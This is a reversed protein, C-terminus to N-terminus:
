SMPVGKAIVDAAAVKGFMGNGELYSRPL